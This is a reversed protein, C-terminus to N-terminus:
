EPHAPLLVPEFRVAVPPEILQGEFACGVTMFALLVFGACVRIGM